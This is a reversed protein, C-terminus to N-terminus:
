FIYSPKEVMWMKWYLTSNFDKLSNKEKFNLRDYAYFFSSQYTFPIGVCCCELKRLQHTREQFKILRLVNVAYNATVGNRTDRSFEAGNMLDCTPVNTM